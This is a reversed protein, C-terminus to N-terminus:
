EDLLDFQRLIAPDINADNRVIEANETAAAREAEVAKQQIEQELQARVEELEPFQRVGIFKIIHWGFETQVPGSVQGPELALVAEEFPEVMMGKKFWGLDGGNPGSPGQSREIAVATFDAGAEIEAQIEKAEEETEVLIHAANYEQKPRTENLKVIHWGSETQVPDSVQGQELSFISEGFPGTMTSPDFWGLDGDNARSAEDTSKEQVLAVFDAGGEIEAKVAKAEDETALQIHSVRFENTLKPNTYREAYLAQLAEETVAAEAVRRMAEGALLGRRENELALESGKSLQIEEDDVVALQQILQDLVGPFLLDNPLQQYEQPLRAAMIIMHGVTIDRGNVTAVVTDATVPVTEATDGSPTQTSEGGTETNDSTEVSTEEAPEETSNTDQAALTTTMLAVIAVGGLLHKVLTM